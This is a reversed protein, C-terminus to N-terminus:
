SHNQSTYLSAPCIWLTHEPLLRVSCMSSDYNYLYCDKSDNLRRIPGDRKRIITFNAITCTRAHGDSVSENGCECLLALGALSPNTSHERRLHNIWSVGSRIVDCEPCELESKNLMSVQCDKDKKKKAESESKSKKVAPEYDDDSEDMSENYKLSRIVGRSSRRNKEVEVTM